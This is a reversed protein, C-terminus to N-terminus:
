RKVSDVRCQSNFDCYICVKNKRNELKSLPFYGLSIDRVFKKVNAATTKMLGKNFQVSDFNKSRGYKLRYKGFKTKDFKLSFLNMYKPEIGPQIHNKLFSQACLMYLPLQLSTGNELDALAPKNYGVKYDTVAFQGSDESLEIRDIKGKIKIGDINVPVSSSLEQDTSQSNTSGFSVEFFEPELEEENTREYEVFKYLISQQKIGNIGFIKELDYFSNSASINLEDIKERAIRYISEVANNFIKDSCKRLIINKKKIETYFEFLVLHLLSGLEIAEIEESPEEKIELHLVRELFYKFPCKAYIELESASFEKYELGTLLADISDHTDTDTASLYGNYVSEDVSSRQTEVMVRKYVNNISHKDYGLTSALLKSFQIEDTKGSLQQLEDNCFISYELEDTDVIEPIVVKEIEALFTSRSYEKAQETKPYSLVVQKGFTQLAEYFLYREEALHDAEKKAYNRNFFIEPSYRTPLDGDILGGIFLYEFQLGRIENLTTVLVGHDSKEKVNFRGNKAILRLQEMFFSLSYTNKESGSDKLLTFTEDILGFFTSFAKIDKESFESLNAILKNPIGLKQITNRLLKLFEQLTTKKLFPNLIKGIYEISEKAKRFEGLDKESYISNYLTKQLINNITSIWNNYGGVIKLKRAVLLLNAVDVESCTIYRSSFARVVSKYYFDTEIIEILNILAAVPSTDALKIRDTLNLPIGFKNFEYNVIGTYNEILNFVVAIRYPEVEQETILRKISKCIIGVENERDYGSFAKVKATSSHNTRKGPKFLKERLDTTVKDTRDEQLDICEKFGAEIIKKYSKDLVSFLSPNYKYYDLEIICEVFNIRGLKAILDIELKSFDSYGSLVILEVDGFREKFFGTFEKQTYTTLMRYLDGTEYAKSNTCFEQFGTYINAIDEAKLKESTSLNKCEDVLVEPSIGNEKYKSIVNGIRQIAGSPFTKRYNTYYKLKIGSISRKLFVSKAAESLESYSIVDGLLLSTFTSLTHLHFRTTAQGPINKIVRKKLERIRRNTPVILLVKEQSGNAFFNDVQRWLDIKKRNSNTLIM